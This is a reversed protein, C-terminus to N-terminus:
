SESNKEQPSFYGKGNELVGSGNELDRGNELGAGNELGRRM